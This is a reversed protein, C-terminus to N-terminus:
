RSATFNRTSKESRLRREIIAPWSADSHLSNLDSDKSIHEVNTYGRNIAEGLYRFAEETKGALAFYCAVDYFTGADTDGAQITAILRQTKKEYETQASVAATFSASFILLLVITRFL